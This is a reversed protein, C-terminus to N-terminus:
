PKQVNCRLLKVLSYKCGPKEVVSADCFVAWRSRPVMSGFGSGLVMSRKLRQMDRKPQKGSQMTILATPSVLVKEPFTTVMVFYVVLTQKWGNKRRSTKLTRSRICITYIYIYISYLVLSHFDIPKAKGCRPLLSVTIKM